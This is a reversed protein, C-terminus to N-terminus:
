PQTEVGSVHKSFSLGVSGKLWCLMLLRSTKRLAQTGTAIVCIVCVDVALPDVDSVDRRSVVYQLHQGICLVYYYMVGTVIVLRFNGVQTNKHFKVSGNGLHRHVRRLEDWLRVKGVVLHATVDHVCSAVHLCSVAPNSHLYLCKRLQSCLCM